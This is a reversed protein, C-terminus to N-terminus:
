FNNEPRKIQYKEDYGRQHVLEGEVNKRWLERVRGLEVSWAGKQARAIEDAEKKAFNDHNACAFITAYDRSPVNINYVQYCVVM